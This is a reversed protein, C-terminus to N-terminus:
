PINTDTDTDEHEYPFLKIHCNLSTQYDLLTGPNLQISISGNENLWAAGIVGKRSGNREKVSVKYDPKRSGPHSASKM